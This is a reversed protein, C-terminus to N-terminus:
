LSPPTYAGSPGLVERCLGELLREGEPWPGYGAATNLHEAGPVVHLHSGWRRAFQRARVLSLYPDNDSAVLLSPFPLPGLPVPALSRIPEPAGPADVDAPAVLMAAVVPGPGYRQAWQVVTISGCSHGVLVVPPRQRHLHGRLTEMWQEREPHDWDSQEVRVWAAHRREWFSQWHDPGSGTYGPVTLILPPPM